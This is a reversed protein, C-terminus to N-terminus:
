NPTILFNQGYIVRTFKYNISRVFDVYEQFNLNLDDQMLYEFEFLIPCKNKAITDIAGKMAFLDGGQIDIKIFDIKEPINLSDITLTPVKRGQSNVYDIGYSGYSDYKKFDQKPFYLYSQGVNHVAGFTPHINTKNNVAINRKLVEFIFDDADFSYVKGKSGVLNSFLISMQGFNAGIDLVVGNTPIFHKACNIIEEEFIGNSKITNAVIDLQADNPLYYKGTATDYLTLGDKNHDIVNKPAPKRNYRVVDVGFSHLVERFLKKM